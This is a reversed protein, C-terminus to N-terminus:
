WANLRENVNGSFTFTSLMVASYLSPIKCTVKAFFSFSFSAKFITSTFYLREAQGRYLAKRVYIQKPICARNVYSTIQNDIHLAALKPQKSRQALQTPLSKHVQRLLFTEINNLM